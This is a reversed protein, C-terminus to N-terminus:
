GRQSVNQITAYYVTVTLPAFAHLLINFLGSGHLHECQIARRVNDQALINRGLFDGVFLAVLLRDPVAILALNANRECDGLFFDRRVEIRPPVILRRALSLRM